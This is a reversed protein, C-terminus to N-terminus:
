RPGGSLAIVVAAATAASHTLSVLLSTVGRADALEKASGYLVVAPAGDKGAVTEIEPLGVREGGGLAKFTAEKVAFRAALHALRDAGMGATEIERETFCRALLEPDEDGYHVRFHALDILDLGLGIPVSM